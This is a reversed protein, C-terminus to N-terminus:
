LYIYLAIGFVLTFSVPVFFNEEKILLLTDHGVGERGEKLYAPFLLVRCFFEILEKVTPPKM